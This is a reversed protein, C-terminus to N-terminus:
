PADWVDHCVLPLVIRERCVRSSFSCLCAPRSWCLGRTAGRRRGSRLNPMPSPRRTVVAMNLVLSAAPMRSRRAATMCDDVSAIGEVEIELFAAPLGEEFPLWCRWLPVDALACRAQELVLERPVHGFRDGARYGTRHHEPEMWQELRYWRFRGQEAMGYSAYFLGKRLGAGAPRDYTADLFQKDRKDPHQMPQPNGSNSKLFIRAAGSRNTDGGLTTGGPRLMTKGDVADAHMTRWWWRLLGKVAAPRLDCDAESQSSGALIRTVVSPPRRKVCSHRKTTSCERSRERRLTWLWFRNERRCGGVNICAVAMTTGIRTALAAAPQAAIVPRM